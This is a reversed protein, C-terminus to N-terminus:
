IFVLVFPLWQSPDTPSPPCDIYQYNIRIHVRQNPNCMRLSQPCQVWQSIETTSPPCDNYSALLHSIWEYLLGLHFVSMSYSWVQFDAWPTLIGKRAPDYWVPRRLKDWLSFKIGRLYSDICTWSISCSMCELCDFCRWTPVGLSNDPQFPLGGM